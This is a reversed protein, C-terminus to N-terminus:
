RPEKLLLKIQNFFPLNRITSKVSSGTTEWLPLTIEHYVWHRLSLIKYKTITILGLDYDVRLSETFTSTSKSSIGDLYYKSIIIRTYHINESNLYLRFLLHRDSAIRYKESYGGYQIITNRRFIIAQHPIMRKPLDAATCYHVRLPTSGPASYIESACALVAAQTMTLTYIIDQINDPVIEDGSNIWIVYAGTAKKLGKNMADYIGRDRECIIKSKCFFTSALEISGDSSGGDIFVHEIDIGKPILKFSDITRELNKRNNLNITIISLISTNLISHNNQPKSKM